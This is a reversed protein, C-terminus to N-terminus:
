PHDVEDEDERTYYLTTFVPVLLCDRACRSM